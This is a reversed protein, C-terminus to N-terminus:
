GQELSLITQTLCPEQMNRLYLITVVNDTFPMANNVRCEELSHKFRHHYSSLKESRDKKTHNLATLLDITDLTSEQKLGLEEELKTLIAVGDSDDITDCGIEARVKTDLARSLAM